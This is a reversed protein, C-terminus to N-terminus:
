CVGCGNGASVKGVEVFEKKFSFRSNRSLLVTTQCELFVILVFVFFYESIYKYTCSTWDM